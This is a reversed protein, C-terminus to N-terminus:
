YIIGYNNTDEIYKEELSKLFPAVEIYWINNTYKVGYRFFLLSHIGKHGYIKDFIKPTRSYSSYRFTEDYNEKIENSSFSVYKYNSYNMATYSIIFSILEWEMCIYEPAYSNNSNLHDPPLHNHQHKAQLHEM